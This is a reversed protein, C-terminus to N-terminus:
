ALETAFHSISQASEKMLTGMGLTPDVHTGRDGLSPDTIAGEKIRIQTTADM